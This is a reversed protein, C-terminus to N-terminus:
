DRNKDEPATLPVTLDFPVSVTATSGVLTLRLMRVPKSWSVQYSMEGGNGQGIRSNPTITQGQETVGLMAKLREDLRKPLTFRVSGDTVTVPISEGALDIPLIPTATLDTEAEDGAAREVPLDVTGVVHLSRAQTAPHRLEITKSEERMDRDDRPMSMMSMARMRGWGHRDSERDARAPPLINEDTDTTASTCRVVMDDVVTLSPDISIRLFVQLSSHQRTPQGREAMSIARQLTVQEVRVGSRGPGPARVAATAPEAAALGACVIASMLLRM